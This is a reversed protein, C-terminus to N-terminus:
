DSANKNHFVITTHIIKEEDSYLLISIYRRNERSELKGANNLGLREM